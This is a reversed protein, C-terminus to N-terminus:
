FLDSITSGGDAVITQGNVYLAANSGLFVAVGAIDDPDGIRGAPTVREVHALREPHEWLAKAFDTKILGPAICNSRINGKGWEVALNRVLQSDAAKSIGYVGIGSNGQMGAISSIIIIAGGGREAMSPAVMNALWFNSRVNNQMIKDFADDSVDKMPGYVPNSAANCVMIDVPGLREATEDVLNQLDDKSSINCPIVIAEGPGDSCAANIAEAVPACAEPKRSSVVVKAGAEAMRRAIAEGIGRSSGTVVAVKGTLDFMSM